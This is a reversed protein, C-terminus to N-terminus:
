GLVVDLVVLLAAVSGFVLAAAALGVVLADRLPSRRRHSRGTRGPVGFRGPEPTPLVTVPAGPVAAFPAPLPAALPVTLVVRVAM